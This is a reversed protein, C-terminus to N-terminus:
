PASTVIFRAAAVPPVAEPDTAAAELARQLDPLYNTAPEAEPRPATFLPSSSAIVVILEHGFPPGISWYRGGAVRDGLRRLVHAEVQSSTELPNPLLHIVTGDMTYYDVQLHAPFDPAAVDFLLHQGGKFGAQGSPLHIALPVPRRLNAAREGALMALPECLASPALDVELRHRTGFGHQDLLTPLQDQVTEAAVTGSVLITGDKQEVELLACQQEALAARLAPLDAPPGPPPLPKSSAPTTWGQAAVLLRVWPADDWRWGARHWVTGAALLLAAMAVTAGMAMARGRPRSPEPAAALPETTTQAKALARAFAEASPFRDEAREALAKALVPKLAAPAKDSLLDRLIAGAAALDRAIEEALRSKLDGAAASNPASNAASAAVAGGAFGILTVGGAKNLLLRQPGLSRHPVGRRHAHSLADLLQAMIAAVADASFREGADLAARLSRGDIFEMAVYVSGGHEGSAHIAAINPHSLRTMAQAARRFQALAADADTRKGAAFLGMPITKLAVVRGLAPDHAKHVIGTAGRGIEGLIEYKGLRRSERQM